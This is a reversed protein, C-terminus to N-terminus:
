NFCLCDGVLILLLLFLILNNVGFYPGIGAMRLGGELINLKGQEIIYYEM